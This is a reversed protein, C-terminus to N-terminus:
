LGVERLASVAGQHTDPYIEDDEGAMARQFAASENLRPDSLTRRNETRTPREAHRDGVVSDNSIRQKDRPEYGSGNCRNCIRGGLLGSGNCDDCSEKDTGDGPSSLSSPTEAKAERMRTAASKPPAPVGCERLAEHPTLPPDEIGEVATKGPVGAERLRHVNWARAVEPNRERLAEVLADEDGMIEVTEPHHGAERLFNRCVVGGRQMAEAESLRSVQTAEDALGLEHLAAAVTENITM